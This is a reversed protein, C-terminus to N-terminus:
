RSQLHLLLTVYYLSKWTTSPIQLITSLSWKMETDVIYFLRGKLVEGLVMLSESSSFISITGRTWALLWRRLLTAFFYCRGSNSCAVLIVDFQQLQFDLRNEKREHVSTTISQNNMYWLGICLRNRVITHTVQTKFDKERLQEQEHESYFM